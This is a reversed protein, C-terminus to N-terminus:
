ERKTPLYNYIMEEREDEEDRMEDGIKMLELVLARTINENLVYTTSM